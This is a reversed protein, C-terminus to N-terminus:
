ARGINPGLTKQIAARNKDNREETFSRRAPPASIQQPAEIFQDYNVAFHRLSGFKNRHFPESSEVFIRYRRRFDEETIDTKTRFLSAIQTWDPPGWAPKQKWRGVYIEQAADTCARILSRPRPTSLNKGPTALQDRKDTPLNLSLPLTTSKVKGPTSLNKGAMPNLLMYRNSVQRGDEDFVPEARALGLGQILALAKRATPRTVGVLRALQEVSVSEVVGNRESRVLANLVAIGSAGLQAGFRDLTENEIWYWTRPREDQIEVPAADSQAQEQDLESNPDGAVM